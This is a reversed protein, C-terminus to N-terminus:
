VLIEGGHSRLYDVNEEAGEWTEAQRRSQNKLHWVGRGDGLEARLDEITERVGVSSEKECGGRVFGEGRGRM